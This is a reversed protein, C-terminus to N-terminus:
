IQSKRWAQFKEVDNVVVGYPELAAMKKYDSRSKGTWLFAAGAAVLAFTWIAVAARITM